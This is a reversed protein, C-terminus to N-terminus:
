PQVILQFIILFLRVRWCLAVHKNPALSSLLKIMMKGLTIVIKMNDLGASVSLKFIWIKKESFTQCIFVKSLSGKLKTININLIYILYALM